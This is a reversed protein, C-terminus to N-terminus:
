GNPKEDWIVKSLMEDTNAQFEEVIRLNEAQWEKDAMLQSELEEEEAKRLLQAIIGSRTTSREQALRDAVELMGKPLSITVKTSKTSQM